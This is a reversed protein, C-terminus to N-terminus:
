DGPYSRGSPRKSTPQSFVTYALFGLAAVTVPFPYFSLTYAAYIAGLCLVSTLGITNM